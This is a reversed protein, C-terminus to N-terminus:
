ESRTGTHLGVRDHLKALELHLARAEADDAKVLQENAMDIAVDLERINELADSQAHASVMCVCCFLSLLIRRM